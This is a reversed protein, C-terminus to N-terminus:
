FILSMYDVLYVFGYDLCKIPRYLWKEAGESIPRLTPEDNGSVLREPLNEM